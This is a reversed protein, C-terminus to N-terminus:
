HLTTGSHTKTRKVLRTKMKDQPSAAYTPIAISNFTKSSKCYVAVVAQNLSETWAAKTMAIHEVGLLQIKLNLPQDFDERGKGENRLTFVVDDDHNWRHKAGAGHFFNESKVWVGHKNLPLEACFVENRVGLASTSALALCLRYHVPCFGGPENLLFAM